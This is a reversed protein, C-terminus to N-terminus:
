YDEQKKSEQQGTMKEEGEEREIRRREEGREGGM